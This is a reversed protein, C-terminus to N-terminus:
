LLLGKEIAKVVYYEYLANLYSNKLGLRKLGGGIKRIKLLDNKMQDISTQKKIISNIELLKDRDIYKEMLNINIPEFGANKAIDFDLNNSKNSTLNMNELDLEISKFFDAQWKRNKRRHEPISLTQKVVEFNLFPTWVPMGFYEPIQTLYSILMLKLRITFVAKLKDNALYCQNETFFKSKSESNENKEGLVHTLDLAMGHSYGLHALDEVKDISQYNISGAWIDGFIGSLFTTNPFTKNKLIKKYFEIHYMGHLHTSFGYIASWEDIYKHYQCLEIQEWSTKYIKAIMKAHTVETSESQNKSIGYTFSRIKSKDKIFYNLIRSDYGGSTPLVIDGEISSEIDSIYSQMLDIVSEENSLSELFSAELVPDKKYEIEVKESLILKSYHRMFKVDRFMTQEFVSYGFECFNFLGEPHITKDKLCLNSLTSVIKEKSNYFVPISGLWDNEVIIKEEGFQILVNRDLLNNTLPFSLSFKENFIYSELDGIGWIFIIYNNKYIKTVNIGVSFFDVKPQIDEMSILFGIIKSTPLTM